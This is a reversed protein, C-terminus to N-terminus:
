KILVSYQLYLLGVKLYNPLMQKKNHQGSRSNLEINFSPTNTHHYTQDATPPTIHGDMFPLATMKLTTLEPKEGLKSSTFTINIADTYSFKVCGVCSALQLVSLDVPECKQTYLLSVSKFGLIKILELLRMQGIAFVQSINQLCRLQAVREYNSGIWKLVDITM